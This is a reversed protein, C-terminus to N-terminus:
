DGQGIRFTALLEAAETDVFTAPAQHLATVAVVIVGDPGDLLYLRVTDLSSIGLSRTAGPEEEYGLVATCLVEPEYCDTARRLPSPEGHLDLELGTLGGLSAATPTSTSLDERGALWEAVSAADPLEVPVPSGVPDVGSPDTFITVARRADRGIEVQFAGPTDRTVIWRDSAAQLDIPQGFRSSVYGTGEALLFECPSAACSVRIAAEATPTPAPQGVRSLGAIVLAGALGVLLIVAAAAVLRTLRTSPRQELDDMRASVAELIRDPASTPARSDLWGAITDDFRETM